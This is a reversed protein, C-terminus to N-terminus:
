AFSDVYEHCESAGDDEEGEQGPAAEGPGFSPVLGVEFVFYGVSAYSQLLHWGRGGHLGGGFCAYFVCCRLACSFVAFAM